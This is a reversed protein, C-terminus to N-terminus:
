WSSLPNSFDRINLNQKGMQPENLSLIAMHQASSSVDPFASRCGATNITSLSRRTKLSKVVAM